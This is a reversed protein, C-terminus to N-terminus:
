RCEPRIQKIGEADVYFPNDCNPKKAGGPRRGGGPRPTVTSTAPRVSAVLPTPPPPDPPAATATPDGASPLTPLTATPVSVDTAVSASASASPTVARVPVRTRTYYMYGGVVLLSTIVISLLGIGVLSRGSDEHERSVTSPPRAVGSQSPHSAQSPHPAATVASGPYSPHSRRPQPGPPSYLPEPV